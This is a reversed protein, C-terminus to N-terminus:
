SHRILYVAFYEPTIKDANSAAKATIGMAFMYPDLAMHPNRRWAPGSGKQPSSASSRLM